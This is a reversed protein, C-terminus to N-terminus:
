TSWKAGRFVLKANKPIMWSRGFRTAGEIKGQACLSQVGRESLGWKKAVECIKLYEM